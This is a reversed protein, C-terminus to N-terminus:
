APHQCQRKESQLLMCRLLRPDSFHLYCWFSISTVESFLILQSRATAISTIPSYQRRPKLESWSSLSRSFPVSALHLWSSEPTSCYQSRFSGACPIVIAHWQSDCTQTPSQIGRFLAAHACWNPVGIYTGVSNAHWSWHREKCTTICSVGPLTALVAQYFIHYNVSKM